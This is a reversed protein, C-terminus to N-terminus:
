IALNKSLMEIVLMKGQLDTSIDKVSTDNTADIARKSKNEFCSSTRTQKIFPKNPVKKRKTQTTNYKSCTAIKERRMKKSGRWIIKSCDKLAWIRFWLKRDKQWQKTWSTHNLYKIPKPLLRYYRYMFWVIM